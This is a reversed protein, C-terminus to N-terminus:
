GCRAAVVRGSAPDTEITVRDERYDQTVMQGPEIQRVSRAGTLRAADADTPKTKGVLQQAAEADCRGATPPAIAAPATCGSLVALVSALMIAPSSGMANIKMM